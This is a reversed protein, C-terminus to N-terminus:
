DFRIKLDAFANLPLAYNFDRVGNFSSGDVLYRRDFANDINLSLVASEIHPLVLPLRYSAFLNATFFPTLKTYLTSTNQVFYGTNYQMSVGWQLRDGQYRLGVADTNHPAYTIPTSQSSFHADLLGLNAFASVRKTIRLSNNFDIGQYTAGGANGFTAIGNPNAANSITVTQIYNLFHTDFVSLKGSWRGFDWMPGAEVSDAYQPMLGFNQATTSIQSFAPPEFSRTYNAYVSLVPANRAGVVIYNLGISPLADRWSKDYGSHKLQDRYARTVLSYKVGPTVSLRDGIWIRAEVYPQVTTTKDTQHTTDPLPGYGPAIAGVPQSATYRTYDLWVGSQLHSWPTVDADAKLIDGYRFDDQLSESIYHANYPAATPVSTTYTYGSWYYPKESLTIARGLPLAYDLYAITNHEKKYQNEWFTAPTEPGTYVTATSGYRAIQAPTAGQVLYFTENTHSVLGTLTGPGVESVLKVAEQNDTPVQGSQVARGDAGTDFYGGASQHNLSVIIATSDHFLLGSNLTMGYKQEDFSGYGVESTVSPKPAPSASNVDITGGFDSYGITSASGAGPKLDLSGTLGLPLLQNAYVSYNDVLNIPIEDLRVNLLGKSFGRLYINGGVIPSTTTPLVLNPQNALASTISGVPISAELLERQTIRVQTQGSTLKYTQGSNKSSNSFGSADTAKHAAIVTVTEADNGADAAVPQAAPVSTTAPAVNGSQALAPDTCLLGALATSAALLSRLGAHCPRRNIM